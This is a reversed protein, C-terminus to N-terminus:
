KGKIWTYIDINCDVEDINKSGKMGAKYCKHMYSWQGDCTEGNVLENCIYAQQNKLKKLFLTLNNFFNLITYFCFNNIFIVYVTIKKLM